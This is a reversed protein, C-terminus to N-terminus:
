VDKQYWDGGCEILLLFHFCSKCARIRRKIYAYINECVFVLCEVYREICGAFIYHEKKQEILKKDM